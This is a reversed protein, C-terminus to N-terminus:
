EGLASRTSEALLPTAMQRVVDVCLPAAMAGCCVALATLAVCVTLRLTPSSGPLAPSRDM